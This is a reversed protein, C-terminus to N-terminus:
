INEKKLWLKNYYYIQIDTLNNVWEEFYKQYKPLNNEKWENKLYEYLETDCM